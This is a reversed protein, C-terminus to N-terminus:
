LINRLIWKIPKFLILSTIVGITNALMDYRDFSRGVKEQIFEISIGIIVAILFSYLYAKVSTKGYQRTFGAMLFLTFIFYLTFHVIKDFHPIRSFFSTGPVNNGPMLCGIAIVAIWLIARWHYKFVKTM